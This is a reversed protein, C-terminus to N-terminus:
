EWSKLRMKKGLEECRGALSSLFRLICDECWNVSM